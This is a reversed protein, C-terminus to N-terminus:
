ELGFGRLLGHANRQIGVKVRFGFSDSDIPPSRFAEHRPRASAYVRRIAAVPVLAAWAFRLITRSVPGDLSCESGRDTADYGYACRHWSEGICLAKTIGIPRLVIEPVHNLAAAIM